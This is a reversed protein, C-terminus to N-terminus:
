GKPGALRRYIESYRPNVVEDRGVWRRAAERCRDHIGDEGLLRELERVAPPYADRNSNPVVTGISQTRILEDYDGCGSTSVVPLGHAMAELISM